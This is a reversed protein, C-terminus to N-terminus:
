LSLLVQIDHASDVRGGYIANELLGRLKQWHPQRGESNAVVVDAGSRLDSFNFDYFSAWGQLHQMAFFKVEISKRSVCSTGPLMGDGEALWIHLNLRMVSRLLRLM